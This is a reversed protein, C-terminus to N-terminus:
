HNGHKFVKGLREKMHGMKHHHSNGTDGKDGTDQDTKTNSPQGDMEKEFEYADRPAPGQPGKLAEVSVQQQTTPPAREVGGPSGGDEKQSSGSESGAMTQTRQEPAPKEPESHTPSINSSTSSTSSSTTTDATSATPNSQEQAPSPEDVAPNGPGPELNTNPPPTNSATTSQSKEQVPAPSSQPAVSTATATATGAGAGAGQDSTSNASSVDTPKIEIPTISELPEPIVATNDQTQPAGPQEDRNGADYPDTVTGRGQVGSVPEEGHQATSETNQSQGFAFSRLGATADCVAKQVSDM